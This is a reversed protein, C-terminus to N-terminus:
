IYQKVICADRRVCIVHEYKNESQRHEEHCVFLKIENKEPDIDIVQMPQSWGMKPTGVQRLIPGNMIQPNTNGDSVIKMPMSSYPSINYTQEMPVYCQHYM